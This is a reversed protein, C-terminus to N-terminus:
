RCCAPGACQQDDGCSRTPRWLTRGIGLMLVLIGAGIALGRRISQRREARARRQEIDQAFATSSEYRNRPDKELLQEVPEVWWTPLDNRLSSIRVPTSDRVRDLVQLVDDGAFANRGTAAFYLVAGLSFLDSRQDLQEGRTQEPSMYTPTGVIRSSSEETEVKPRGALGFDAIRAIGTEEDLLVNDPKLDRHILEIAHAADLGRVLQATLKFM